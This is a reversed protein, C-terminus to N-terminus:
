AEAAAKKIAAAIEAARDRHVAHRVGAYRHLRAHPM